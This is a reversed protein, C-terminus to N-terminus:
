GGTKRAMGGAAGTADDGNKNRGAGDRGAGDRGAKDRKSRGSLLAEPATPLTGLVGALREAEVQVREALRGPMLVVHVSHDRGFVSGLQGADLPAVVPVRGNWGSLFRQREEPSGDSAQVVLGARGGDLWERAKSFGAVAQGARRALGLTEVVRRVLAVALGSTLDPSVTVPCRAARAFAGRTRATELVDGRASLWIGRGPLTATLDPVVIGVKRGAEADPPLVVFRIMRERALRERTVVCRRLPGTEPEDADIDDPEVGSAGDTEQPLPDTTPRRRTRTTPQQPKATRTM